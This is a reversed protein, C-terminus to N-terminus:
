NGKKLKKIGWMLSIQKRFKEELFDPIIWYINFHFELFEERLIMKKDGIILRLGKIVSEKAKEYNEEFMELLPHQNINLHLLAEEVDMSPQSDSIKDFIFNLNKIIDAPIETRFIYVMRILDIETESHRCNNLLATIEQSKLFIGFKSLFQDLDRIQLYQGQKEIAEYFLDLSYIKKLYLQYRMKPIMLELNNIVDM